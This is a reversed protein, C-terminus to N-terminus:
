RKLRERTSMIKVHHKCSKPMNNSTIEHWFMALVDGSGRGPYKCPPNWSGHSRLNHIDHELEDESVADRRKCCKKHWGKDAIFACILMLPLLLLTVLAESIDVKSYVKPTLRVVLQLLHYKYRTTTNTSIIETRASSAAPTGWRVRLDVKDPTIFRIM